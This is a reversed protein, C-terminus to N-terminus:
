PTSLPCIGSFVTSQPAAINFNNQNINLSNMTNSQELQICTVNTHIKHIAWLKIAKFILNKYNKRTLISILKLGRQMGYILITGTDYFLDIWGM